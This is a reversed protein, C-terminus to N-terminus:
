HGLLGSLDDPLSPLSTPLTSTLPLPPITPLSPPSFQPAPLQRRRRSAVLKSTRADVLRELRVVAAVRGARDLPQTPRPHATPTPAPAASRDAPDVPHRRDGLAGHRHRDGRAPRALQARVAARQRAAPVLLGQLQSYQQAALLQEASAVARDVRLRPVRRVPRQRRRPDRRGDRAAHRPDAQQAGASNAPAALLHAGSIPGLSPRTAAASRRSRPAAAHPRVRPPAQRTGRHRGHDRLQVGETARKVGYFPQGPLSRSAGLGVGTVGTVVAAGGRARDPPAAGELHQRRRSRAAAAQRNRRRRPRDRGRRTAPAAGYPVGPAPRRVTPVARLAEAVALMPGAVPDDTRADSELLRNFEDARRTSTINM